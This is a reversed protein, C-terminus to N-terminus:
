ACNDDQSDECPAAAAASATLPVALLAAGFVIAALTLGAYLRALSVNDADRTQNEHIKTM